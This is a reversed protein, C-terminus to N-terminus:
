EYGATNAIILETWCPAERFGKPGIRFPRWCIRRVGTVGTAWLHSPSTQPVERTVYGPCAPCKKGIHPTSQHVLYAGGGTAGVQDGGARQAVFTPFGFALAPCSAAIWVRRFRM